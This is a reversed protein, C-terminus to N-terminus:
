TRVADELEKYFKSYKELRLLDNRGWQGKFRSMDMNHLLDAMKVKSALPNSKVAEEYSQGEVKTLCMVANAIERPFGERLDQETYETDEIIDHLAAITLLESDEGFLEVTNAMVNFIHSIYPVGAKDVQGSHYTLAAEIARELSHTVLM